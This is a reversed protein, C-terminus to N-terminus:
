NKYGLKTLIDSWVPNYIVLPLKEARKSQRTKATFVGKKDTLIGYQTKDPNEEDSQKFMYFVGDVISMIVDATNGGQVQIKTSTVANTMDDKNVDKHAIWMIHLSDNGRKTLNHFSKVLGVLNDKLDGWDAQAGFKNQIERRRSPAIVRVVYDKCLDQLRTISDIFVMDYKCPVKQGGIEFFGQKIGKGAEILDEWTEIAIIEVNKAKDLVSSGGELDLVLTKFKDDDATSTKGTGPEGYLIGHFGDKTETPKKITLAM